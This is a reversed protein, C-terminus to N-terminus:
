VASIYCSRAEENTQFDRTGYHNAAARLDQLIEWFLDNPLRARHMQFTPIDDGRRHPALGVKPAIEKYKVKSFTADLQNGLAIILQPLAFHAFASLMRSLLEKLLSPSFSFEMMLHIIMLQAKDKNTIMKLVQKVLEADTLTSVGPSAAAPVAKSSATLGPNIRASKRTASHAAPEDEDINKRKKPGM